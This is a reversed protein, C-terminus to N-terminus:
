VGPPMTDHKEFLRCFFDEVLRKGKEGCLEYGGFRYVEYGALKLRRDESVMDAYLKPQAIDDVAYHQKGDVEVVIRTRDSLLLLFDM